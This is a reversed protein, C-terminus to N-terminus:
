ITKITFNFVPVSKYSLQETINSQLAVFRNLNLPSLIVYKGGLVSFPVTGDVTLTDDTNSLIEVYENPSGELPILFCGKLSNVQGFDANSDQLLTQGAVYSINTSNGVHLAVNPLEIQIEVQDFFGALNVGPTGKVFRGAPPSQVNATDILRTNLSGLSPSYMRLGSVAPTTDEIASVTDGTGNTIDWTTIVRIFKAIGDRNGKLKWCSVLDNMIRRRTDIGITESVEGLGQQRYGHELYEPAVLRANQLEYASILSYIENFKYGFVSMLDRLDETEDIDRFVSPWWKYLLSAIDNNRASIAFAQTSLSNSFYAFQTDNVSNFRRVAGLNSNNLLPENENNYGVWTVENGRRYCSGDFESDVVLSLSELGTAIFIKGTSADVDFVVYDAKSNTKFLDLQKVNDLTLLPSGDVDTYGEQSIVSGERRTSVTNDVTLGTDLGVQLLTPNVSRIQFQNGAGDVFYHDITVDGLEINTTYTVLGSISDYNFPSLQTNQTIVREGYQIAGDTPNYSYPVLFPNLMVNSDILGQGVDFSHSPPTTLGALPEGNTGYIQFSNGAIDKFTDGVQINNFGVPTDAQTVSGHLKIIPDTGVNLGVGIKFSGSALNTVDTISHRQGLSDAFLYGVAIDEGSLDRSDSFTIDGTVDNYSYSGINDNVYSIEEYSIRVYYPAVKEVTYPLPNEGYLDNENYTVLVSLIPTTFVTYYYFTDVELGTGVKDLVEDSSRYRDIFGSTFTNNHSNLININTSPATTQDYTYIVKGENYQIHSRNLDGDQLVLYRIQNKTLTGESIFIKGRAVGYDIVEANPNTSSLSLTTESGREVLVTDRYVTTVYNIDTADIAQKINLATEEPTAGAVWETGYTLDVNNNITIIDGVTFTNTVVTITQANELLPITNVTSVTDKFDALIVFAGEVPIAQNDPNSSISEYYIEDETNGTIRFVQSNIDRILRGTYKNDRELETMAPTFTNDGAVQLVGEGNPILHSMHIPSGRFVEVQAVDTYRDEFNSNKIEVPFADKRRTVVIEEGDVLDVPLDWYLRLEGEVSTRVELNKVLKEPNLNAM